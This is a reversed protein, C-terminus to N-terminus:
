LYYMRIADEARSIQVYATAANYYHRMVNKDYDGGNKPEYMAAMQFIDAAKEFEM